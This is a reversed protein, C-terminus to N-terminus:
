KETKFKWYIKNKINLIQEQWYWVKKNFFIWSYYYRPIAAITYKDVVKTVKFEEVHNLWWDIKVIDWVQLKEM